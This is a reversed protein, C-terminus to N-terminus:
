GSLRGLLWYWLPATALGLPIGLGIMMSVLPADLKFQSAVIGAGIMPPMAAEILSVRGPLRSGSHSLWLVAMVLAPCALLKYALGLSLLRANQRLAGFHLQMGVSMLALPALTDGLRALAADLAAPFVIPRLLIAVLLAVLPPFTTVKKVFAGLAPRAEAAYITAMLVGVTSLALYSGLQDILLGLGMGNSGQLSEIMPLGVFSTNGLGGVLTLAGVSARPLRLWRGFAFFVAAGIAFLAWPMAVPWVQSVDFEFRHLTHLTVAPLSVNIIVVNIALHGNEPLRGSARLAIGALLCAVLLLLNSV